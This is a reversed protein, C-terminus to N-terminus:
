CSYNEFRQTILISPRLRLIIQSNESVKVILIESKKNKEYIVDEVGFLNYESIVLNRQSLIIGVDRYSPQISFSLSIEGQEFLYTSDNYLWPVDKDLLTPEVEFFSLLQWDEISIGSM